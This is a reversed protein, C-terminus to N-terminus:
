KLSKSLGPFGKMFLVLLITWAVILVISIWLFKVDPIEPRLDNVKTKAVKDGIRRGSEENLMIFYEIIPFFPIIMFINRAITKSAAVPTGKEDIVQLGVLRKGLSQGSFCDRLLIYIYWAFDFINKAILLVIIIHIGGAILSDILFACVRKNPGPKNFIINEM